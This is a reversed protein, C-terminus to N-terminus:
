LRQKQVYVFKVATGMFITKWDKSIGLRQTVQPNQAEDCKLGFESEHACSWTYFTQHTKGNYWNILYRGNRVTVNLNSDPNGVAAYIFLWDSSPKEPAGSDSDGGTSDGNDGNDGDDDGSGTQSLLTFIVDLQGDSVPRDLTIKFGYQGEQPVKLTANFVHAAADQDLFSLGAVPNLPTVIMQTNFPANILFNYEGQLLYQNAFYVSNGNMKITLTDNPM